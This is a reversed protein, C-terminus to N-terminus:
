DAWLREIRDVDRAGALGHPGQGLRRQREHEEGVRRPDIEPLQSLSMETGIRSSPTPSGRVIANPLGDDTRQDEILDADALRHDQRHDQSRGVGRETLRDDRSGRTGLRIRWPRFTSLPSLSPMQTGSSNAATAAASM